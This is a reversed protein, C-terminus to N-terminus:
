LNELLSKAEEKKFHDEILTIELLLEKCQNVKGLKFYGLASYWRAQENFRNDSNAISVLLDVAKQYDAPKKYLYCLGQFFDFSSNRNDPKVNDLISLAKEYESNQFSNAFSSWNADVKLDREINPGPRHNSIEYAVFEEADFKNTYFFAIAGITVIILAAAVRLFLGKFENSTNKVSIEKDIHIKTSEKSAQLFHDLSVEKKTSEAKAISIGELITACRECTEVHVRVSDSTNEQAYETLQEFNPHTM